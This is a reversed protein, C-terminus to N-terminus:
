NMRISSPHLGNMMADRQCNGCVASHDDLIKAEPFDESTLPDECSVCSRYSELFWELTCFKKNIKALDLDPDNAPDYASQNSRPKGGNFPVVNSKARMDAIKADRAAQSAYPPPINPDDQDEDTYGLESMWWDKYCEPYNARDSNSVRSYDVSYNDGDQHFLKGQVTKGPHHAGRHKNAYEWPDVCGPMMNGFKFPELEESTWEIKNKKTNFTIKYHVDDKPKMNKDADKLKVGNRMAAAQLTWRESSFVFGEFNELSCFAMPRKGNSAFNLTKENDDWWVLTAAGNIARWTEKIGFSNIANAICESDTGYTLENPLQWTTNLTGNHVLTIKGVQFPHANEKNVKGRTAARNHGIYCHRQRRAAEVYLPDIMLETPLKTDKVVTVDKNNIFAVGTSDRGRVIDMELMDEFMQFRAKNFGGLFGVIGCM